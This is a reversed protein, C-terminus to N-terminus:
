GNSARGVGGNHRGSRLERWGLAGYWLLVPLHLVYGVQEAAVTPGDLGTTWPLVVAALGCLAAVM